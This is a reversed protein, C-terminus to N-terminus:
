CRASARPTPTAEWGTLSRKSGETDTSSRSQRAPDSMAAELRALEAEMRAPGSLREPMGGLTHQSHFAAEQPLYGISLNKARQVQGASQTEEGALIRLLTTKGIGNPGVIALRARHPITLSIGSFIDDPGYSKALDIVNILSM